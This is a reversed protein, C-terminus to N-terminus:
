PLSVGESVRQSGGLGDPVRQSGQADLCRAPEPALPGILAKNEQQVTNQESSSSSELFVAADDLVAKEFEQSPTM